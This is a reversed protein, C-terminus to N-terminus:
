YLSSSSNSSLSGPLGISPTTTALLSNVISLPLKNVYTRHIRNKSFNLTLPFFHITRPAWSKFPPAPLEDLFRVRPVPNLAKLFGQCLQGEQDFEIQM